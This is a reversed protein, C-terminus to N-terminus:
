SVWYNKKCRNFLDDLEKVKRKKNIETESFIHQLYAKVGIAFDQPYVQLIYSLFFRDFSVLYYDLIYKEKGSKRYRYRSINIHKRFFGIKKKYVDLIIDSLSKLFERYCYDDGHYMFKRMTEKINKLKYSYFNRNTITKHSKRKFFNTWIDIFERDQTYFVENKNNWDTVFVMDNNIQIV